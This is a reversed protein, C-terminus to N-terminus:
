SDSDTSTGQTERSTPARLIPSPAPDPLGSTGGHVGTSAGREQLAAGGRRIADELAIQGAKSSTLTQELGARATPDLGLRQRHNLALKELKTSADLAPRPRGDPEFLGNEELWEALVQCQAEARAWAMVAPAFSPDALWPASEYALEALEAAVPDTRRASWAGHRTTLSHGKAFTGRGTEDYVVDTSVLDRESRIRLNSGM